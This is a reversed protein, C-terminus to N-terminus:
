DKKKMEYNFVTEKPKLAAGTGIDVLMPIGAGFFGLWYTPTIKQKIEFNVDQYGDMRLNVNRQNVYKRKLVLDTGSKGLLVGDVYVDVNPPNTTISLHDKTGSLLTACSTFFLAFAFMSIQFIRIKM